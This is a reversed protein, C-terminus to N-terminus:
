RSRAAHSTSTEDATHYQTRSRKSGAASSTTRARSSQGARKACTKFFKRMGIFRRDCIMESHKTDHTAAGRSSSDALSQAQRRAVDNLSAAGSLPLCRM